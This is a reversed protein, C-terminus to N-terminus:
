TIYQIYVQMCTSTTNHIYTHIYTHIQRCCVNFNMTLAGGFEMDAPLTSAYISTYIRTHVKTHVFKNTYTDICLKHIYRYVCVYM